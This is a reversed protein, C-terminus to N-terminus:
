RSDYQSTSLHSVQASSPRLFESPPTDSDCSYSRYNVGKWSPSLLNQYSGSLSIATSSMDSVTSTCSCRRDPPPSSFKPPEDVSLDLRPVRLLGTAVNPQPTAVFTLENPSSSTPSPPDLSIQISSLQSALRRLRPSRPTTM